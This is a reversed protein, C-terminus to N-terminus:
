PIQSPARGACLGWRQEEGPGQCTRWREGALGAQVCPTAWRTARQLRGGPALGSPGVTLPHNPGMSLPGSFYTASHPRPHHATVESRPPTHPSRWHGSCPTLPSDRSAEPPPPPGQPGGACPGRSLRAQCTWLGCCAVMKRHPQPKFPSTCPAGTGTRKSLDTGWPQLAPGARLGATTTLTFRALPPHALPPHVFSSRGPSAQASSTGPQPRTSPGREPAVTVGAPAPM